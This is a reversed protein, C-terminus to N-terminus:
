KVLDDFFKLYSLGYLDDGRNIFSDYASLFNSRIKKEFIMKKRKYFISSTDQLIKSIFTNMSNVVARKNGLYCMKMFLSSFKFSGYSNFLDLIKSDDGEDTSQFFMFNILEDIFESGDKAVTTLTRKRSKFHVRAFNLALEKLKNEDYIEDFIQNSIIIGDSLHYEIMNQEAKSKIDKKIIFNSIVFKSDTYSYTPYLFLLIREYEPKISIIKINM